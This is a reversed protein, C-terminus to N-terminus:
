SHDSRLWDMGDYSRSHLHMLYHYHSGEMPKLTKANGSRRTTAQFCTLCAAEAKSPGVKGNKFEVEGGGYNLDWVVTRYM